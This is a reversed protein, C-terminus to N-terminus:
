TMVFNVSSFIHLAKKQSIRGILLCELLPTRSCICANKTALYWLRIDAPWGAFFLIWFFDIHVYLYIYIICFFLRRERWIGGAFIRMGGELFQFFYCIYVFIYEHSYYSVYLREEEGFIVPLYGCAARLFNFFYRIYGFIYEHLYYLVYLANKMAM